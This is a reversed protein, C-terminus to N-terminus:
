IEEDSVKVWQFENTKPTYGIDQAINDLFTWFLRFKKPYVTVVLPRLIDGELSIRSKEYEGEIWFSAVSSPDFRKSKSWTRAVVYNGSPIHLLKYM